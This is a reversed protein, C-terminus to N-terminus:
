SEALIRMLRDLKIYMAPRVANVGLVANMGSHCVNNRKDVYMIESSDIGPTRLWWGINDYFTNLGVPSFKDNSNDGSSNKESLEYDNMQEIYNRNLKEQIMESQFFARKSDQKLVTSFFFSEPLDNKYQEFEELSLLFVRDKTNKGGSVGYMNKTENEIDHFILCSQDNDKFCDNLFSGNLFRRLSSSYWSVPEAKDHFPDVFLANRSLILAYNAKPDQKLIYWLMRKNSGSYKDHGFFFTSLNRKKEDLDVDDVKISEPRVGYRRGRRLNALIGKMITM